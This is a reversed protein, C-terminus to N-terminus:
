CGRIKQIRSVSGKSRLIFIARFLYLLVFGKLSFEGRSNNVM